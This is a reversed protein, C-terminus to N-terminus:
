NATLVLVKGRKDGRPHGIFTYEGTTPAGWFVTDGVSYDSQKPM